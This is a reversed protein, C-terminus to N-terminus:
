RIGYPRHFPLPHCRVRSCMANAPAHANWPPSFEPRFTVVLLIAAERMREVILSFADLTSPDIWHADELVMLLAQKRALNLAQDALAAM